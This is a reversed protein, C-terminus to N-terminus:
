ADSTCLSIEFFSPFSDVDAEHFFSVRRTGYSEQLSHQVTRTLCHKNQQQIRDVRGGASGDSWWASGDARSVRGSLSDQQGPLSCVICLGRLFTEKIRGQSVGCMPRTHVATCM